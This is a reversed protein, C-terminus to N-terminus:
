FIFLDVRWVTCQVSNQKVQKREPPNAGISIIFGGSLFSAFRVETCQASYLIEFCQNGIVGKNGHLVNENGILSLDLNNCIVPWKQCLDVRLCPYSAENDLRQLTM